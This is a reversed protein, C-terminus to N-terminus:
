DAAAAIRRLLPEDATLFGARALRAPVDTWARDISFAQRFLSLAEEPRKARVLSIAHWFIFEANGPVLDSAARHEREAAQHDGTRIAQRARDLRDYARRLVLLRRLEQLPEQADDVRLDVLRDALPNGTAKGAVVILAASQKGRVDGGARQAADLTELLREALSGTAAEFANAMAPWVKDDRMLNAQVTYQPGISHGAAEINSRGTHVAVRGTADIMAVQRLERGADAALLTSLAEQSPKGSRMLALGSLGYTPDAISQTAVAGVGAEAWIVVSGVAFARSQVAVGLQGTAPDRAVISYTHVLGDMSVPDRAGVATTAIVCVLCLLLRVAGEM